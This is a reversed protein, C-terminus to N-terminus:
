KSVVAKTTNEIVRFLHSLFSDERQAFNGYKSQVSNIKETSPYSANKNGLFIKFESKLPNNISKIHINLLAEEDKLYKTSTESVDVKVGHAKAFNAVPERMPYLQEYVDKSLYHMEFNKAIKADKRALARAARKEVLPNIFKQIRMYTSRVKYM